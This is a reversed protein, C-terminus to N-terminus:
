MSQPNAPQLNGCIKRKVHKKFLIGGEPRNKKKALAFSVYKYLDGIVSL